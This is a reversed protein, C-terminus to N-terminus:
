NIKAKVQMKTADPLRIIVQRERIMAGPEIVVDTGGGRGSTENGYVVQGDAPANITCKAIQSDILALKDLDVRHTQQDSKYKAEATKIDAKLQGEMKARTFDRIVTLKTNAVDLEKRAKEVAFKDAELQVETVYGKAALLESYRVYEQARRLNESAVFVEGQITEEDQKFTGEQYERLSIKATDLTTSSQIVLAESASVAILQTTRENQLASDDLKVLFDGKKVVTGEPVVEIIATGASNRGQVECRVEINSSSEIEGRETVDHVFPESSVRHVIPRAAANNSGRFYRWAGGGVFVIAASIAAIVILLSLGQRRASHRYPVGQVSVIRM